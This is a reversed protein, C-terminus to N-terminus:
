KLGRKRLLKSLSSVGPLGRAGARLAWDVARWTDGPSQAIPGSYTSPWRGTAKFHARAWSLIHQETLPPLRKHNRKGRRQALLQPLSSGRQFGRGGVRMASDIATWTERTGPISGSEKRPWKGHAAFYADAWALVQEASLNPSKRRDPVGREKELFKALTTRGPLGRYGLRLCKDIGGWTRGTGSIEGSDGTPWTGHRAHHSDAWALIEEVRIPRHKDVRDWDLHPLFERMLDYLSAYRQVLESGHRSTIDRARIWYWDEPRHFRLEKGVWRLYRHRNEATDWFGLPVQQFKWECWNRGPVLSTVALAPSSRYYAMLGAGRNGLFDHITIEYWDNMRRYGLRQGLWDLYSRRNGLSEWFGKPVAVFLWPKWDYEPFCERVAALASNGWFAALGRGYNRRYCAGLELRYFDEMSRFGLRHASWLLYDRRHTEDQWFRLPVRGPMWM